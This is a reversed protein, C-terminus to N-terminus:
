VKKTHNQAKVLTKRLSILSKAVTDKMTRVAQAVKPDVGVSNTATPAQSGTSTCYMLGDCFMVVVLVSYFKGINVERLM